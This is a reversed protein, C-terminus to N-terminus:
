CEIITRGFDVCGKMEERDDREESYTYRKLKLYELYLM